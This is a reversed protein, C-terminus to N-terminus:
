FSYPLCSMDGIQLFSTASPSRATRSESPRAAEEAAWVKGDAHEPKNQSSKSFKTAQSLILVLSSHVYENQGGQEQQVQRLVWHPFPPPLRRCTNPLVGYCLQFNFHTRQTYVGLFQHMAVSEMVTFCVLPRKSRRAFM